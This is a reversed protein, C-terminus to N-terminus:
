NTATIMKTATFTGCTTTVTATFQQSGGTPVTATTPSVAVSLIQDTVTVTATASKTTDAQSTAVAHYTGASSPATYVGASTISGGATGEQVSWTVATNSTGSVTASFTVSQCSKIAATSPTIAVTVVPPPATVTVTAIASRTADASSTAVVHCTAAAAPATYVGSQTVSGCGSTEQVSWTVATNTTGTVTATFTLSGGAAVTATSPSIAVAVVPTVTVAASASKTTDAQSTAVVHYSGATGPATYAGTSTVSGGATGEQVSWTVSTSATGTVLAAFSVSGGAKVQASPPQVRVAIANPAGGTDTVKGGCACLGALALLTLRRTDTATTMQNAKRGLPFRHRKIL